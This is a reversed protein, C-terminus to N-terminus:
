TASRFACRRTRRCTRRKWRRASWVMRQYTLARLFVFHSLMAVSIRFRRSKKAPATTRGLSPRYGTSLHHCLYGAHFVRSLTSWRVVAESSQFIFRMNTRDVSPEVSSEERVNPPSFTIHPDAVFFAPLHYRRPGSAISRNHGHPAYLLCFLARLAPCNPHM